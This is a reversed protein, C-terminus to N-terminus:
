KQLDGNVYTVTYEQGYYNVGDVIDGVRIFPTVKFTITGTTPLGTITRTYIYNSGLEAATYTKDKGLISTYVYSSTNSYDSGNIDLLFGVCDFELSDVTGVFRVSYGKDDAKDQVGSFGVAYSPALLEVKESHIVVKDTWAGTTSNVFPSSQKVQTLSSETGNYINLKGNTAKENNGGIKGREATYTLLLTVIGIRETM